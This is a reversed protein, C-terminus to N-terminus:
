SSHWALRQRHDEASRHDLAYELLSRTRLQDVIADKTLQAAYRSHTCFSGHVIPDIWLTGKPRLLKRWATQQVGAYLQKEDEATFQHIPKLFRIATRCYANARYLLRQDATFKVIRKGTEM